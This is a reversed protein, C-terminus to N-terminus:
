CFARDHDSDPTVNIILIDKSENGGSESFVANNNQRSCTSDDNDKLYGIITSHSDSNRIVRPIPSMFSTEKSDIGTTYNDSSVRDQLGGPNTHIPFRPNYPDGQISRKIIPRKMRRTEVRPSDLKSVIVKRSDDKTTQGM